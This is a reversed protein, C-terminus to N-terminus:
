VLTGSTADTITLSAQFPRQPCPSDAREVPCAGGVVTAGTIGSATAATSAGTGAPPASGPRTPTTPVPATPAAGGAGPVSSLPGPGRRAPSAGCGALAALGLGAVVLVAVIARFRNAMITPRVPCREPERRERSDPSCSM